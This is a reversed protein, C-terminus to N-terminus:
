APRKLARQEAQRWLAVLPRLRPAYAGHLIARRLLSKVHLIRTLQPDFTKWTSDECNWELCPVPRLSVDPPRTEALVAGLAAQNIGGFRARWPQHYAADTLMRRNVDRWREVFARARDSVRVFVVGANLSMRGTTPRVTYAVDFTEDWIPDLSRLVITDVDILLLRDGDAAAAVEAAWIDLKQTNTEYGASRAVSRCPPPTCSRVDVHWDPSHTRASSALVAAFRAFAPAGGTFYRALLRPATM